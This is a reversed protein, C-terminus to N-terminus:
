RQALLLRFEDASVFMRATNVPGSVALKNTVRIVVKGVARGTEV